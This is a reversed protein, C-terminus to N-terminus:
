RAVRTRSSYKRVFAVFPLARLNCPFRSTRRQCNAASKTGETRNTAITNIPLIPEYTRNLDQPYVSTIASTPRHRLISSKLCKSFTLRVCETFGADTFAFTASIKQKGDSMRLTRVTRDRRLGTQPTASSKTAPDLEFQDAAGSM